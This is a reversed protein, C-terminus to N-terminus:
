LCIEPQFDGDNEIFNSKAYVTYKEAMKQGSEINALEFWKLMGKLTRIIPHERYSISVLKRPNQSCEFVRFTKIEMIRFILVCSFIM